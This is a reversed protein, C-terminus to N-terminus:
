LSLLGPLRRTDIPAIRGRQDRCSVACPCLLLQASTPLRAQCARIIAPHPRVQLLYYHEDRLTARLALMADSTRRHAEAVQQQKDAGPVALAAQSAPNPNPNPDRNPKSSLSPYPHAEAM